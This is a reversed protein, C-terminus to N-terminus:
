SERVPGKTDLTGGESPAAEGGTGPLNETNRQIREQEAQLDRELLVEYIPKDGLYDAMGWASLCAAMLPLVLDYGSTMEMILVIATLPARVVGTFLAAMGVLAFASPQLSDVPLLAKSVQGYLLGFLSGLVLLPAFIGGPAGTGCSFLTLGFRLLVCLLLWPASRAEGGLAGAVLEHGTGLLDVNWSAVLGVVGGALLGVGWVPWRRVAEMGELSVLLGRNFAVGVLGSGVGLLVFLPLSWLPPLRIDELTYVSMQGLTGRTVTDALVCALFTVFFVRPAFGRQFVELVFILGALPANFVAALGAGSGAALLVNRDRVRQADEGHGGLRSTLGSMAEAVAGGMQVTPGAKGLALGGGIAFLSGFFKVLLLSFWNMVRKGRLVGLLQPVGSGAAARSFRRVSYLSVSTGVFVLGSVLAVRWGWSLSRLCDTRAAEMVELSWRFAVAVAGSALGILLAGPLLQLRERRREQSVQADRLIQEETLRLSPKRRWWSVPQPDQDSKM